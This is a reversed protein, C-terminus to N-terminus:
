RSGLVFIVVSYAAASGTYWALVATLLAITIIIIIVNRAMSM